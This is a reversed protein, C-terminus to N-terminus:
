TFFLSFECIGGQCKQAFHPIIDMSHCFFLFSHAFHQLRTLGYQVSRLPDARDLRDFRQPDPSLAAFVVNQARHIARARRDIDRRVVLQQAAPHPGNQGLRLDLAQKLGCRAFADRPDIVRVLALLHKGLDQGATVAPPDQVQDPHEIDAAALQLFVALM